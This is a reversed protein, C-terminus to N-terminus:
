LRGKRYSEELATAMVEEFTLPEALRRRNDWYQSYAREIPNRLTVILRADPVMAHIRAPVDPHCIYGPSAEGVAIAGASTAAFYEEYYSQGRAFESEQFFFNLEKKEPMFIQPHGRFVEYLSTTGAKQSGIVIFNPLMHESKSNAGGRRPGPFYFIDAPLAIGTRGTAGRVPMRSM